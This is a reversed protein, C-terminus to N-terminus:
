RMKFAEAKIASSMQAAQTGLSGGGAAAADMFKAAEQVQTKSQIQRGMQYNCVGLYYNATQAQAGSLGPLSARLEKNCEFFKQKGAQVVGIIFHMRTIAAGDAKGKGALAKGAYSMARDNQKLAIANDAASVMVDQDDGFNAAAKDAAAGFKAPATRALANLYYPYGSAMYQSKPNGAELASLLDVQTAPDASMAATLLAYEAQAGVEKAHADDPTKAAFELVAVALPKIEAPTKKATVAADLDRYAGDIDTAAMLVVSAFLGTALLAFLKKM